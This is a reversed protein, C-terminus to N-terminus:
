HPPAYLEEVSKSWGDAKNVVQAYKPSEKFYNMSDIKM